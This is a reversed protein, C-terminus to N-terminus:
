KIAGQTMGSIFERSMFAYIIIIPVVALWLATSLLHWQNAYEGYFVSVALPITEKSRDSILILPFFFDNWVSVFNVIAVVVLAPKILPLDIKRFITWPSAGDIQASEELEGPVEDLFNKLLFVSFPVGTGIYLLILGLRSNLLGVDRLMLFIPIIALRAPFALGAIIYLYLARRLPFRYRSLIFAMMSSIILIGIVSFSSIILSNLYGIGLNAKSWAEKYNEWRLQTPPSFPALFIESLNKFSNMVINLFPVLVIISYLIFLIFVIIKSRKSLKLMKFEEGKLWVYM